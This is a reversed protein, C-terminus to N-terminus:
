RMGFGGGSGSRGQMRARMATRRSERQGEQSQWREQGTAKKEEASMADWNTKKEQAGAKKADVATQKEEDSMSSWQDQKAQANAKREDPTTVGDHANRATTASGPRRGEQRRGGGAEGRWEPQGVRDEQGPRRGEQRRHRGAARGPEHEALRQTERRREQQATGTTDDAFAPLATGLAAALLAITIHPLAQDMIQEGTNYIPGDQSGPHGTGAGGNRGRRRCCRGCRQTVSSVM